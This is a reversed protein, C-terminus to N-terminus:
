LYQSSFKVNVTPEAGLGSLLLSLLVGEERYLLGRRVARERERELSGLQRLRRWLPGVVGVLLSALTTILAAAVLLAGGVCM